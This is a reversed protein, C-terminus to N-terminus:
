HFPNRVLEPNNNIANPPIESYYNSLNFERPQQLRPAPQEVFIYAGDKNSDNPHVVRYVYLGELQADDSSANGDWVEHADRWRKLDFYRHGEFALEVRRERKIDQMTPNSSLPDLGARERLADIYPKAAGPNGLEIHAEAANLLVEGYRYRVWWVGSGQGRNGSNPQTSIFKRVYFGTNSVDINTKSPGDLGTLVGGDEYESGLSGTEFSYSGSSPDWVAVGTQFNMSQGRFTAGPHIISGWLRPDKGIFPGEKSDFYIYDSGNEVCRGTTGADQCTQIEGTTSNFYPNNGGYEFAEVLDLTPSLSGSALNDDRKSRPMASYNFLHADRRAQTDYDRAWIVEPNNSENVIAEYFNAGEDPNQNYLSYPGNQIIAEAADRAQEFYNTPDANGMGVINGELSVDPTESNYKAISGAYLMARSKLALATWRNARTQSDGSQPLDGKIAEIESSVFDYVAKESAREKRLEAVSEPGEYEFVQTIIPVGGMRKVLEFYMYARLFRAEAVFQARQAESFAESAQAKEIFANLDGILGYGSNGGWLQNLWIPYPGWQLEPPTGGASWLAEDFRAWRIPDGSLGKTQPLRAYYNSLVGEVLDPNTFVQDETLIDEPETSLPDDQCGGISVLLVAGVFISLYRKMSNLTAVSVADNM